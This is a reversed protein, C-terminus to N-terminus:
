DEIGPFAFVGALRRRWWASVPVEAVACREMAHVMTEHGSLIAAHKAPLGPRFRFLMVDGPRATDHAVERLHRRLAGLLQEHDDAEAWDRAYPPPLEPEAGYIDRWVGRLLGLCDTGAGRMSAQHYYPTGIWGRAAQIVDCRRLRETRM